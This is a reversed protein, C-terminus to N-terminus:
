AFSASPSPLRKKEGKLMEVARAMVWAPALPCVASCIALARWKTSGWSLSCAAM